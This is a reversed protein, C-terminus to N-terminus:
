QCDDVDKSDEEETCGMLMLIHLIRDIKSNIHDLRKLTEQIEEPEVIRLKEMLFSIKNHSSEINKFMGKLDDVDINNDRIRILQEGIWINESLLERFEKTLEEKISDDDMIVDRGEKKDKKFLSKIYRLV